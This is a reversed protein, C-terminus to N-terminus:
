VKAEEDTYDEALEKAWQQSAEFLSPVTANRVIHGKDKLIGWYKNFTGKALGCSLMLASHRQSKGHAFHEGLAAQATVEASNKRKANEDKKKRDAPTFAADTLTHMKEEDNWAFRPGKEKSIFASRARESFMVTVGDGDKELRLNTEAKRELQSGLHGRTKGIESGPNEHLVCVIVTNFQIALQHLEDILALSEETDNPDSCLDGLGDLIVCYLGGCATVGREMELRVYERRQKLPLDAVRYSRFWKPADSRYARKLARMMGQHHDWPSQETDFHIVAYGKTNQAGFGLCDGVADMSAAIIAGVVASKGVKAKAQIAFLNGPTAVTADGLTFVPAPEPPPNLPDFARATLADRFSSVVAKQVIALIKRELQALLNPVDDQEDYSREAYETCAGIIDRLTRKDELIGLYHGVNAATPLFTCLETIYAAGGAADLQHTDHLKTTLTILDIPAKERRLQMLGDYVVQHAPKHFHVALLGRESCLAGVEEPALFFSSLVGKEAEISQPFLRHMEEQAKAHLDVNSAQRAPRTITLAHLEEPEPQEPEPAEEPEEEEDNLFKKIWSDLEEDRFTPRAFMLLDRPGKEEDHIFFRASNGALFVQVEDGVRLLPGDRQAEHFLRLTFAEARARLEKDLDDM